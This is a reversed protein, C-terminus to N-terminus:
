LQAAVSRLVGVADVERVPGHSPVIRYLGPRAAISELHAKLAARDSM